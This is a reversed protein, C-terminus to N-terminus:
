ILGHQMAFYVAAARSSVGIKNFIHELHHGATKESIALRHAIERNTAGGAVLALVELERETLGAPLERRRAPKELRGGLEEVLADFPAAALRTGVERRMRALVEASAPVGARGEDQPESVIEDYRDAVALIRAGLPIAEGALGRYYGRGDVWEHHAGVVAALRAFAPVRNLIRESYYPHLRMREEEASTLTSRKALIRVPVAVSGLDHLMGARRIDAIETDTLAMRRAIAAAIGATRQSHGTLSPSKLDTFDAFACAIADLREEAVYRYVSDPELNLVLSWLDDDALFRWFDPHKTNTLFADVVAPDLAKGREAQAAQIAAAPGRAAAFSDVLFATFAIRSYLPIADGRLGRPGKGNWCEWLNFLARQVPEPMGVRGAIRAGVECVAQLGTMFASPGRGLVAIIRQLRIALPADPGVNRWLWGLMDPLSTPDTLAFDARATLEDGMLLAAYDAADATCGAHMLLQTYYLEARQIAPLGMEQAIHMGICCARLVHDVPHGVGLDEALSLGALIEALRHLGGPNQAMPHGLTRSTM